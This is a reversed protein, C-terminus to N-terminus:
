TKSFIVSHFCVIYSNSLHLLGVRYLLQNITIIVIIKSYYMKLFAETKSNFLHLIINM